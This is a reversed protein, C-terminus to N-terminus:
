LPFKMINSLFASNTRLLYSQSQIRPLLCCKSLVQGLCIMRQHCRRCGEQHEGWPKSQCTFLASFLSCNKEAEPLPYSSMGYVDNRLKASQVAKISGALNSVVREQHGPERGIVDWLAAPQIFDDDTIHSACSAVEGVWKEHETHLSLAGPSGGKIEQYFKTPQLSSNVYNPDGGYNGDFRM